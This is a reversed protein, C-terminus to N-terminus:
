NSIFATKLMRNLVSGHFIIEVFIHILVVTKVNIIILFKEKILCILIIESWTVSFVPTIAASFTQLKKKFQFQLWTKNCLNM